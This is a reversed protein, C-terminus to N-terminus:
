ATRSVMFVDDWKWRVRLISFPKLCTRRGDSLYTRDESNEPGRLTSSPHIRIPGELVFTSWSGRLGRRLTEEVTVEKEVELVESSGKGTTWSERVTQPFM